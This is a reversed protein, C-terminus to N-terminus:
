TRQYTSTGALGIDVEDKKEDLNISGNSPPLFVVDQTDSYDNAEIEEIVERLTFFYKYESNIQVLSVM